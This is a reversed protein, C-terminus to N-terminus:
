LFENISNNSRLWKKMIGEVQINPQPINKIAQVVNKEMKGIANATTTDVPQKVTAARSMTRDTSHKAMASLINVDPLIVDGKQVYTLTPKNPTVEMSGDKKIHLESKGGDGVIAPGEYPDNKTKGKFYKPLPTALVRAIQAAGITGVLAALGINAPTWPKAGLASIVAIATSQIIDAINKIREYRARETDLQRKRREYQERQTNARAEIVAIANAREQTNAITQNAVEIDKQKKKELLDISNQIENKEKEIGATLFSFAVEKLENALEKYKENRQKDIDDKKGSAENYDVVDQDRLQKRIAMLKKEAEARKDVDLNSLELLHTQYDLEALLSDRRAKNEIRLKEKEYEDKSIIGKKYQDAILIEEREARREIRSIENNFRKEADAEIGTQISATDSEGQAIDADNISRRISIIADATEQEKAILERSAKENILKRESTTLKSNQLEFDRQAIVLVREAEFQDLRAKTREQLTRGEAEAIAKFEAIKDEQNLKELEFRAKREREAYELARAAAEKAIDKRKEAAKKEEDNQKEAERKRALTIQLSTQDITFRYDDDLKKLEEYNKTADELQKKTEDTPNGQAAVLANIYVTNAKNLAESLNYIKEQTIIIDQQMKQIDTGGEIDIRIKNLTNTKDLASNLDNIRDIADKVEQNMDELSNASDETKSSFLGMASAASGLLVLIAGIGTSLLAIRFAKTATTAGATAFTYLTQYAALAKTRAGELLLIFSSEKKLANQIGQLGNLITMVAQLKVLTKQLEENDDGFLAVAGQAIGYAGALAQAGQILGDLTRTDSGLNRITEKLDGVNDKLEATEQLLSKYFDTTQLGAAQLQQLAKENNRVEATASAFGAQQGQVLQTLLAEEKNLSRLIGESTKGTKNYQDMKARVDELAKELTKVAGSYNGINLKQKLYADANKQIFAGNKDIETNLEKLRAQGEKTFLNLKNREDTLVKIRARAKEISGSEADRLEIANKLEKNQKQIEVRNAVTAKNYDTQITVLKAETAFRQTLVSNVAKVSEALATNAKVGEKVSETVAKANTSTNISIKSASLKNMAELGKNLQDLFFKTDGEIGARDIYKDILEEAM